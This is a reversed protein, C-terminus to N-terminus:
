IFLHVYRYVLLDTIFKGNTIQVCMPCNSLYKFPFLKLQFDAM